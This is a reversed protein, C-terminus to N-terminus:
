LTAEIVAAVIVAVLILWGLAYLAARRYPHQIRWPIPRLNYYGYPREPMEHSHDFLDAAPRHHSNHLTM